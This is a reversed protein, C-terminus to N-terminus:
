QDDALSLTLQLQRKAEQSILTTAIVAVLLSVVLGLYTPSSPQDTAVLSAQMGSHVWLLQPFTALFAALMYPSFRAGIAGMSYSILMTPIPSLRVLAHWTWGANATAIVVASMWSDARPRSRWRKKGILFYGIAYNTAAAITAVIMVLLLGLPLGFIAGASFSIATKPVCVSMLFTAIVVFVLPAWEQTAHLRAQYSAIDIDPWTVAAIM